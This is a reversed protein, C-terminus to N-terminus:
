KETKIHSYSKDENIKWDRKQNIKLKKRFLKILKRESIGSRRSSDIIYMLCDVYETGIVSKSTEKFPKNLEIEVEIIERKLGELSSQSTSNPFQNKSWKNYDKFLKGISRTWDMYSTLMTGIGFGCVCWFLGEAFQVENM